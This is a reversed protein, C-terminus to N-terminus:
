FSIGVEFEWQDMKLEITQRAPPDLLNVGSVSNSFARTVAFSVEQAGLNKSFGVTAHQEIVGPALINFLVASSPIPQEGTSFGARLAWGEGQWQAGFKYTTMDQWEFGAGNNDGLRTTMLNPLMPNGVSKIDNYLIQQVDFAFSLSKDPKLAVGVVWNAPIDFDGKQAFLGAYSDFEGMKIQTQFSAGVSFYPSWEGLYGVRAGFGASGNHNNDSVNTPSGSFNGFARLGEAKFRQYALIATVGFAHKGGLKIAYTPAVFLQALDVGTPKFGFTPHDYNTNMGGNGFISLGFFSNDNLTWNAGLAPIVFWESGSEVTGPALGFTGPLLSPAGTVTYQRNPNFFALSIDFRKGLFGMAAPNTAAGLSNLSLGVGAGAMGKYKVGYGHSFYGNTAFAHSVALSLVTGTLLMRRQCRKLNEM